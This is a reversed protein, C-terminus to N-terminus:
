GKDQNCQHEEGKTKQTTLLPLMDMQVMAECSLKSRTTLCGQVSGHASCTMAGTPACAGRKSHLDCSRM